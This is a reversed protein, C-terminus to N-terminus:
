IAAVWIRVMGAISEETSLLSGNTLGAQMAIKLLNCCGM